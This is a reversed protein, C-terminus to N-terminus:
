LYFAILTRFIKDAAIFEGHFRDLKGFGGKVDVRGAVGTDLTDRTGSDWCTKLSRTAHIFSKVIGAVSTLNCRVATATLPFRVRGNLSM